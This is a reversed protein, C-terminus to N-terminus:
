KLVAFADVDVRPRGSTGLVVLKVKHAGSSSWTKAFAQVRYKATAAYTDITTALVGDLYIKVKGRTPLKSTVFAVSRGTFSYTVSASADGAYKVAGGSYDASSDSTWTGTWTYGSGTEQVLSPTLVRGTAWAGINGAADVPRIRYRVTGSPVVTTNTTAVTLTSNITTWTTGGDTSRALEYHDIGTGAFNDTGTWSLALRLSAGLLTVGSRLSAAPATATPATIDAVSLTACATGDSTNGVVDTARVCITHVGATLVGVVADIPPRVPMVAGPGNGLQGYRDDGWCRVTGDTLRACSHGYFTDNGGAAVATATGVGLVAVPTKRRVRTGDGLEGSANMGWCSAAGSSLRVCSHAEGVDLSTASTIGSAQIPTLSGYVPQGLQDYAGEGWCWVTRDSLRACTHAGGAGIEVATSIGVVTVPTLRQNETGDGLKGSQGSGWCKASSGSLVACSHFAGATIAVANTLGYVKV